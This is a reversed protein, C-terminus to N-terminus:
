SDIVEERALHASVRIGEPFGMGDQIVSELNENENLAFKYKGPPHDDEIIVIFMRRIM